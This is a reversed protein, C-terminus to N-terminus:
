RDTTEGQPIRMRTDEGPPHRWTKTDDWYYGLLMLIGMVVLVVTIIMKHHDGLRGLFPKAM